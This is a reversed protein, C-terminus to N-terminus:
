LTVVLKTGSVGSSLTELGQGLAEIGKGVVTVPVPLKYKGDDVLKGLAALANSGGPADFLTRGFILHHKIDAPIDKVNQGTAVEAFNKPGILVQFLSPDVQVGNVADLITEVGEGTPSAKKIEEVLSPSNYDFAATAGHSTLLAHHKPSSTALIIADPLALRLLQIASAGVGSSGGM